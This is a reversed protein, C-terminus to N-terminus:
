HYFKDLLKIYDNRSPLFQYPHSIEEPFDRADSDKQVPFVM